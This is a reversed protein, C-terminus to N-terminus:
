RKKEQIRSIIKKIIYNSKLIFSTESNNYIELFFHSIIPFFTQLYNIELHTEIDKTLSEFHDKKISICKISKM